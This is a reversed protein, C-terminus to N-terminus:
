MSMVDIDPIALNQMDLVIHRIVQISAEYMSLAQLLTDLTDGDHRQLLILAAGEASGLHVARGLEELKEVIAQQEGYEPMRMSHLCAERVREPMDGCVTSIYKSVYPAYVPDARCVIARRAIPM